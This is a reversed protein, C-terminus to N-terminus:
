ERQTPINAKPTQDMKKLKFRSITLTLFGKLYIHIFYSFISLIEVKNFDIISSPDKVITSPKV